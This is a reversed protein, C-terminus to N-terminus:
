TLFDFVGAMYFLYIGLVLSLAFGPWYFKEVLNDVMRIIAKPWGILLVGEITAWLGIITIIVEWSMSWQNHLTITAFGLFLPFFGCMQAMKEDEVIDTFLSKIQEKRILMLFAMVILYLGWFKAFFQTAEM